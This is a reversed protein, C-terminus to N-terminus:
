IDNEATAKYETDVHYFDLKGNSALDEAKAIAETESNAEISVATFNYIIEEVNIIYTKM